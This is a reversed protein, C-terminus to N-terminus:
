LNFHWNTENKRLISIEIVQIKEISNVFEDDSEYRSTCESDLIDKSDIIYCQKKFDVQAKTPNFKVGLDITDRMTTYWDSEDCFMDIFVEENKFELIETHGNKFFFKAKLLLKYNIREYDLINLDQIAEKFPYGLNIEFAIARLCDYNLPVRYSFSIINDIESYYKPELKDKMYEQIEESNPYTFRFHYHFRGPRNILFENLKKIENCTVIFMKKGTSVGDFLSLLSTQPTEDGDTSYFTKDFEDFLVVVEQQISEIFSAIGPIYENVIIVPYGKDIAKQSLNKAFLSKGIGKSGSLIIGLSRNFMEFSNLAKDIKRLHSGYIKDENVEIDEHKQLRFGTMKNFTIVYVQAPLQNFLKMNDDYIQYISDMNVIKM